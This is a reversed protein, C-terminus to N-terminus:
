QVGPRPPADKGLALHTRVKYCAAYSSRIQRLHAEGFVLM